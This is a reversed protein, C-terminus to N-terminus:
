GPVAAAAAARLRLSNECRSRRGRVWAAVAARSSLRGFITNVEVTDFLTAYATM